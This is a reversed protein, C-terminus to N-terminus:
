MFLEVLFYPEKVLKAMFFPLITLSAFIFVGFQLNEIRHKPFIEHHPERLWIVM